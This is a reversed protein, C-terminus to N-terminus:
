RPPKRPRTSPASWNRRKNRSSAAGTGADPRAVGAHSSQAAPNGPEDGGGAASRRAAVTEQTNFARFSAVELVGLLADKSLLPLAVAQVPAAQGLGSAIRFYDPPLNTLTVVSESTRASALWGKASGFRAPPAACEALGYAAVRQLRGLNRRVPLLGAVGGGLMPVLGSLLRQGFEALSAAGQLEGTLRSVNSKVWRQEDM